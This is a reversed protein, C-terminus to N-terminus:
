NINVKNGIIIGLDEAQNGNIEVVYKAPKSHYTLCPDENCPQFNHKIDVVKYNSDLFILDLPILTNKMWFSRAKEDNFIFIMGENTPLNAINMLGQAKEQPTIAPKLNIIQNNISLKYYQQTTSPKNNQILIFSLILITSIIIITITTKKMNCRKWLKSEM